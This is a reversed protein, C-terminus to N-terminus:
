LYFYVNHKVCNENTNLNERSSNTNLILFTSNQIYRGLILKIKNKESDNNVIKNKFVLINYSKKKFFTEIILNSGEYDMIKAFTGSNITEIARHNLNNQSIISNKINTIPSQFKQYNHKQSEDQSLSYVSNDESEENLDEKSLESIIDSNSLKKNNKDLKKSRLCSITKCYRKFSIITKAKFNVKKRKTVKNRSIIDQDLIKEFSDGNAFIDSVSNYTKIKIQSSSRSRYNDDDKM